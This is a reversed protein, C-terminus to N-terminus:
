YLAPCTGWEKERTSRELSNIGILVWGVLSQPHTFWLQSSSIINGMFELTNGWLYLTLM